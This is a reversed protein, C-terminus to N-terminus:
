AFPTACPVLSQALIRRKVEPWAEAAKKDEELSELRERVLAEVADTVPVEPQVTQQTTKM